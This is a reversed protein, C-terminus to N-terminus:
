PTGGENWIIESYLLYTLPVDDVDPQCRHILNEMDQDSDLPRGIQLVGSIGAPLGGASGTAHYVYGYLGNVGPEGM